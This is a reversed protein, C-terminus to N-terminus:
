YVASTVKLSLSLSTGLDRELGNTQLRAPQATDKCDVVKQGGSAERPRETSRTVSLGSWVPGAWVLALGLKCKPKMRNTLKPSFNNNRYFNLYGVQGVSPFM